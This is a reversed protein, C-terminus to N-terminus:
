ELLRLSTTQDRDMAKFNASEKFEPLSRIQEDTLNEAVLRDGRMAVQDTSLAVQKQGLGLFGGHGVVLYAKNDAGILVKDVEGMKEGRANYLPRDTLDSAKVAQLGASPLAGTQSPGANASAAGAAGHGRQDSNLQAQAGQPSMGAPQAPQSDPAAQRNPQAGPLGSAQATSTGAAEFRVQPQGEAPRYVIQPEGTREYRVNPQQGASQIQPQVQAQPPVVQIRPQPISVQVDPQVMSVNVDPPPMRVIIEPQPQQVTIEPAAQRVIIEPQPQRVTVHPQAQQVVVQPVPGGGEQSNQQPPPAATKQPDAPTSTAATPSGSTASANETLRRLNDQCPQFESARQWIRVQEPTVGPNEPRAQELYAILRDCEAIAAKADVTGQPAVNPTVQPQQQALAAGIFATSGMLAALLATWM